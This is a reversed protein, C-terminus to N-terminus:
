ADAPEGKNKQKGQLIVLFLMPLILVTGANFMVANAKIQFILMSAGFLLILLRLWIEEASRFAAAILSGFAFYLLLSGVIGGMWLDNVYGVDSHLYGDAGYITHGSGFLLIRGTPINWYRASFLTDATSTLAHKNPDAQGAGNPGTTVPVTADPGTSAPLSASPDTTIAPDTTGPVTMTPDSLAPPVTEKGAWGPVLAKIVSGVDGLIWELTVPNLVAIMGILFALILVAAVVTLVMKLKERRDARWFVMALHPLSFAAGLAAMVLGTRVNVLSVFLIVPCLLIPWYRKPKVLFLPLAALLGMGWGFSDAFSNTFGFGRRQMIWPIGMYRDGTNAYITRVFFAKLEPLLLALMALVVQILVAGLFCGAVGTVGYGLAKARLCIYLSCILLMPVLLFFRYWLKVYHMLQVREGLLFNVVTIVALYVFFAAMTLVFRPMGCDAITRWLARRYKTALMVFAFAGAFLATNIEPIVPPGFLLVFLFAILIPDVKVTKGKIRDPM